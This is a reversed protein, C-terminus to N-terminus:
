KAFSLASLTAAQMSGISVTVSASLETDTTKTSEDMAIGEIAAADKGVMYAALADAQENWEKGIGSAAKM